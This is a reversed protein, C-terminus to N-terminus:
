QASKVCRFGTKDYARDPQVIGRYTATARNRPVDWAGGRIVKGAELARRDAAYSLPDSATWEWVNGILDLLGAPSAGDPFSGVAVIRGRGAERTNARSAGWEGSWPYLRDDGSRAAYEWEEETPLRKGAWEAFAAADAWAVNVVPYSAEGAPYRNSRWHQPATRGTEDIFKQYQENSVETRDMFFPAVTMERVPREYEDGDERGMRFSGGPLYVMGEPADPVSSREPTDPPVPAPEPEGSGVTTKWIILAFVGTLLILGVAIVLTQLAARRNAAASVSRAHQFNPISPGRQHVPPHLDPRLPSDYAPSEEPMQPANAMPSTQLSGGILTPGTQAAVEATAPSDTGGTSRGSGVGPRTPAVTEPLDIRSDPAVARDGGTEIFQGIESPDIRETARHAANEHRSSAGAAPRAVVPVELTRQNAEADTQAGPDPAETSASSSFPASTRANDQPEPASGNGLGAGCIECFQAYPLAEAGCRACRLVDGTAERVMADLDIVPNTEPVYVNEAAISDASVAEMTVTPVAQEPPAPASKFQLAHERDTGCDRCYLWASRWPTGCGVCAGITTDESRVRLRAGCQQCFNEGPVARAGCRTCCRSPAAQDEARQVLGRGCQKCYKLPDSYEMHCASCYM